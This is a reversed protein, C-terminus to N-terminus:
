VLPFSLGATRCCDKSAGSPTSQSAGSCAASGPLRISESLNAPLFSAACCLPLGAVTTAESFLGTIEGWRSVRLSRETGNNDIQLDGDSCLTDAGDLQETFICHGTWNTKSPGVPSTAMAIADGGPLEPGRCRYSGFGVNPTLCDMFTRHESALM